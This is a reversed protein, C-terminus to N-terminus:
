LQIIDQINRWEGTGHILDKYHMKELFPDDRYNHGAMMGGNM